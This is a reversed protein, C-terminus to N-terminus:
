GILRILATSPQWMSSSGIIQYVYWIIFVKSKKNYFLEVNSIGMTPSQCLLPSSPLVASYINCDCTQCLNVSKGLLHAVIQVFHAFASHKNGVGRRRGEGVKKRRGWRRRREEV